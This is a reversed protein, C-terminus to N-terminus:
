NFLQDQFLIKDDKKLQLKYLIFLFFIHSKLQENYDIFNKNM